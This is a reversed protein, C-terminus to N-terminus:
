SLKLIREANLHYIKEKDDDTLIPAAEMFEVAVDNAEPPWDVGFLVHEPMAMYCCILAPNYFNGSTVAYFNERIYDGATKKLTPGGAGPMDPLAMGQPMGAGSVRGIHFPVGEGMHGLLIKLNPCEDFLGSLILRMVALHVDAAYGYTKSALQPYGEYLKEGDPHAETPHLFMPVDLENLKQFIPRYKGLDLRDGNELYTKVKPGQLGLEKVARTLEAAAAEPEQWPLLCFGGFRDPYRRVVESLKENFRRAQKIGEEGVLGEGSDSWSLIQMDIGAADMDKLRLDIAGLDGVISMQNMPVKTGATYDPDTTRKEPENPYNKWTIHEEVAIRKTRKGSVPKEQAMAKKGSFGLCCLASCQGMFKLFTRRALKEM